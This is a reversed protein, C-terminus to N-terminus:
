QGLRRRILDRYFAVAEGPKGDFAIRHGDLVLTRDIAYDPRTILDTDHIAFIVQKDYSFLAAAVHASGAEDLGKTPEDAVIAAPNFTLAAAIALFHRKESDLESAARRACDSLQFHALLNGVIANREGEAVKRKRLPATLAETITEAQYFANPIEERRVRGVLREIRKLDKRSATNLTEGDITVDVGESPVLAGDLMKLLTTKGSGNLGIIAVRRDAESITLTSRLLGVGGDEYTYGTNALTFTAADPHSQFDDSAKGFGFIM